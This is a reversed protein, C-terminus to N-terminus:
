LSRREGALVSGSARLLCQPHKLMQQAFAHVGTNRKRGEHLGSGEHTETRGVRGKEQVSGTENQQQAPLESLMTVAAHENGLAVLRM